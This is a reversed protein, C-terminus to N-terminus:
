WEYPFMKGAAVPDVKHGALELARSLVPDSGSAL